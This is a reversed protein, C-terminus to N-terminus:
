GIKKFTNKSGNGLVIWPLAGDQDNNKFLTLGGEVNYYKYQIVSAFSPADVTEKFVKIDLSDGFPLIVKLYYSNYKKNCNAKQFVKVDELRVIRGINSMIEEITEVNIIEIKNNKSLVEVGRINILQKGYTEDNSAQCYFSIEDGVELFDINYYCNYVYIGKIEKNYHDEIFFCKGTIQSIIGKTKITRGDNVTNISELIESISLNVNMKFADENVDCSYLNLKNKKAYNSADELEKRYKKVNDYLLLNAFGDKLIEENYLIYDSDENSKYWVYALHRKGTNDIEPNDGDCEIVISFANKLREIAYKRAEKGLPQIKKTTEPANIGYYRIDLNGSSTQFFSSDADIIRFLKVEEIGDYIFSKGEYKRKLKVM